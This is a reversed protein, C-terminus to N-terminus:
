KSSDSRQDIRANPIVPQLKAFSATPLRLPMKTEPLAAEPTRFLDVTM